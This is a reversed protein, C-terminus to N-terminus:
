YTVSISGGPAEPTDPPGVICNVDLEVTGHQGDASSFTVTGSADFDLGASSPEVDLAFGECTPPDNTGNYYAIVVQDISGADTSLAYTSGVTVSDPIHFNVGDDDVTGDAQPDSGDLVMVGEIRYTAVCAESRLTGDPFNESMTCAPPPTDDAICATLSACLAITTLKM